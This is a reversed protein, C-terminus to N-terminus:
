TKELRPVRDRFSLARSLVGKGSAGSLAQVSSAGLRAMRRTGSCDTRAPFNATKQSAGYGFSRLNHQENKVSSNQANEAHGAFNKRNATFQWAYELLKEPRVSAM